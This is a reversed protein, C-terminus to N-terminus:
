CRLVEGITLHKDHLSKGLIVGHLGLSRTLRLDDLTSIGGSVIVKALPAIALIKEYFERDIGEMCGDRSIDTCLYEIEQYEEYEGLLNPLTLPAFSLWADMAPRLVEAEDRRLDFALTIREAGFREIIRRTKRPDSVALSGLVIREVGMDLYSQMDEITRLGGGVQVKLGSDVVLREILREQCPRGARAGDLDVVHLFEAGMEKFHQAVRLPDEDYEVIESFSGRKLRVVRNQILDIAPLIKLVNLEGSM